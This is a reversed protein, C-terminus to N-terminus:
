RVLSFIVAERRWFGDERGRRVQLSGTNGYADTTTSAIDPAIAVTFAVAATITLNGPHVLAVAVTSSDSM